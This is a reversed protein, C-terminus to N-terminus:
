FNEKHENSQTALEDTNLRAILADACEIAADTVNPQTTHNGFLGHEAYNTLLGQMALGALYARVTLGSDYGKIPFASSHEQIM